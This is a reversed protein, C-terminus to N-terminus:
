DSNLQYQKNDDLTTVIFYKECPKTFRGCDESGNTLAPVYAYQSGARGIFKGTPDKFVEPDAGPMSKKIFDEGSIALESREPYHGNRVKYIELATKIGKLDAIREKDSDNIGQQFKKNFLEAWVVGYSLKSTLKEAQPPDLNNNAAKVTFSLTADPFPRGDYTVQEIKKAKPDVWVNIKLQDTFTNKVTYGDFIAALLNNRDSQDLQELLKRFGDKNLTVEYKRVSKGNITEMGGVSTLSMGNTPSAKAQSTPSQVPHALIYDNVELWKSQNSFLGSKDVFEAIYEQDSKTGSYNGYHKALEKTDYFNSLNVYIKGNQSHVSGTPSVVYTSAQVMVLSDYKNNTKIEFNYDASNADGQDLRGTITYSAPQTAYNQLAKKFVNEPKNPIYVLLAYAAAAGVLLVIVSLLSFIILKKKKSGAKQVDSASMIPTPPTSQPQVQEPNSQVSQPLASEAPQSPTPAATSTNPESISTTPTGVTPTEANSPVPDPTGEPTIVQPDHPNPEM